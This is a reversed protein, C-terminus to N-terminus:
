SQGIFLNGMYNYIMFKSNEKKLPNIMNTHGNLKIQMQVM